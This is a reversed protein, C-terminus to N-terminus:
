PNVTITFNSVVERHEDISSNFAVFTLDYTGPKSYIYYYNNVTASGLDRIVLGADRVVMSLDFARSILWDDNDEKTSGAITGNISVQGSAPVSWAVTPNKLDVAAWGAQSAAVIASVKDPLVHKIDFTRIFWSPQKLSDSYYGQYRLAIYAPKRQKAFASLDIIGSPTRDAGTSLVAQGTIDTWGANMVSTSDYTGNFDTSVLLTLTNLQGRNQLYSTFELQPSGDAATRDKYQYNFGPEGSYFTINDAQGSFSFRVTDGVKFTSGSISVDFNPAAVELKRCSVLLCFLCICILTRM